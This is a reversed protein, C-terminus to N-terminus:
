CPPRYAPGPLYHRWEASTIAPFTLACVDRAARDADTEWLRATGDDSATALM